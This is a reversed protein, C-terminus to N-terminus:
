ATWISGDEFTLVAGDLADTIVVRTAVQAICWRRLPKLQIVLRSLYAIQDSSLYLMEDATALRGPIPSLFFVSGWLVPDAPLVREAPLPYSYAPNPSGFQSTTGFQMGVGFQANVATRRGGPKNASSTILTGAVSAPDVRSPMVGFQTTSDFQVDGFQTNPALTPTNEVVYLPFGAAQIQAELWGPGLSAFLSAREAIRAKREETTAESYYSIGYKRELDDMANDCLNVSPIAACYVSDRFAVIRDYEAALGTALARIGAGGINRAVSAIRTLTRAIADIMSYGDM